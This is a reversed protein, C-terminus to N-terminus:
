ARSFNPKNKPLEPATAMAIRHRYVPSRDASPHHPITPHSSAAPACRPGPQGFQPANEEDDRDAKDDDPPCRSRTGILKDRADLGAFQAARRHGEQHESGLAALQHAVDVAPRQPEPKIEGAIIAPDFRGVADQQGSEVGAHAAHAVLEADVEGVGGEAVGADHEVAEREPAANSSRQWAKAALRASLSSGAASHM